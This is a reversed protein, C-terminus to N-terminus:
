KGDGGDDSDDEQVLKDRVVDILSLSKWREADLGLQKILKYIDLEIPNQNATTM